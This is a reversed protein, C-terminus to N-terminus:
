LVQYTHETSPANVYTSGTSLTLIGSEFRVNQNDLVTQSGSSPKVTAGHETVMAVGYNSNIICMIGSGGIEITRKTSSGNGTYTGTPKDTAGTYIQGGSQNTFHTTVNEFNATKYTAIGGQVAYIGYSCNKIELTNIYAFSTNQVCYGIDCDEITVKATSFVRSNGIIHVGNFAANKITIPNQINVNGGNSVNLGHDKGISDLVLGTRIELIANYRSIVMGKITIDTNTTDTAVFRIIKQAVTVNEEYIGNDMSIHYFASSAMNYPCENVAKQITKWPNEQTGDGNEDSGSPAVYVTKSEKLVIDNLAASGGGASGGNEVLEELTELRGALDGDVVIDELAEVREGEATLAEDMERLAALITEPTDTFEPASAGAFELADESEVKRALVEQWEEATQGGLKKADGAQTEGTELKAINAKNEEIQRVQSETAGFAGDAALGNFLAMIQDYVDQTPEEPTGTGCLISGECNIRAPTTTYLDGEFVGVKVSTIGSLVPVEVTIGEFVVDQHQVKGDRVYAFRATRVGAPNWDADFDFTITYDSNGCVIIPGGEVQAKKDRVLIKINREAM